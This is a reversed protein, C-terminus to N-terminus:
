PVQMDISRDLLTRGDWTRGTVTLTVVGGGDDAVEVTGFQGAGPYTGGTYPGGKTGGPRDLAAAHFVPFGEHGFGSNTGDDFAVMHADGSIMLTRRSLGLSDIMASIREREGAFGGWTDAGPSADDIWPSANAWVVVEGADAAHRLQDFLWALQAEGLMSPDDVSGPDRESRADTVIFRVRGVTFAQQIPGVAPDQLEYHPVASRYAQQAADRSSSTRDADNGGYDHDDWVYAISTSRYFESQAPATLVSRYAALFPGPEDATINAYHFDGLALYLLPERERMADFVAGNSGSRACSAFAFTFSSPGAPFTQVHGRRTTDLAGDAEIAFHYTTAPRLGDVTFRVIRDADDSAVHPASPRADRLDPDLGFVLRVSEHVDALRAVVVTSSSTTGGTWIWDVQSPPLATLESQPHAPGLTYAELREAAVWVGALAIATSLALVVVHHIHRQRQWALWHLFAPIGLVLAMVVAVWTPYQIASLIALGAASTALLAAGTAEFRNALLAGIGYLGLLVLQIPDSVGPEITSPDASRPIWDQLALVSLTIVAGASMLTAVLRATEATREDVTLLEQLPHRPRSSPDTSRLPLPGGNTPSSEVRTAGFPTRALFPQAWAPPSEWRLAIVLAAAGAYAFAFAFLLYGCWIWGISEVWGTWGIYNGYSGVLLYGALLVMVVGVVGYVVRPRRTTHDEAPIRDGETTLRGSAYGEVRARRGLWQGGRLRHISDRVLTAISFLLGVGLVAPVFISVEVRM